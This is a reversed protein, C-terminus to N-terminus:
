ENAQPVNANAAEEAALRASADNELVIVRAKEVLRSANAANANMARMMPILALALLACAFMVEVLSFGGNGNIQNRRVIGM